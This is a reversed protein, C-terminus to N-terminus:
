IKGIGLKYVLVDVVQKTKELKKQLATIQKILVKARERFDPSTPNRNGLGM